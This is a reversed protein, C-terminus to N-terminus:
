AWRPKITSKSCQLLFESFLYVSSSLPLSITTIYLLSLTM